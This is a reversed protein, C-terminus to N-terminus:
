HNFQMAAISSGDIAPPLCGYSSPATHRRIDLRIARLSGPLTRLGKQRSRRKYAHSFVIGDHVLLFAMCGLFSYAATAAASAVHGSAWAATSSIGLVSLSWCDTAM